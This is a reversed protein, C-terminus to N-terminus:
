LPSRVMIYSPSVHDQWYPPNYYYYQITGNKGDQITYWALIPPRHLRIEEM